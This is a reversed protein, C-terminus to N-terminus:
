LVEVKQLFMRGGLTVFALFVLALLLDGLLSLSHLISDQATPDITVRTSADENFLVIRDGARDMIVLDAEIGAPLTKSDVVGEGYTLTSLGDEGQLWLTGEADSTFALTGATGPIRHLGRDSAVGHIGNEGGVLAIFAGSWPNDEALSLVTHFPTGAGRHILTLQPAGETAAADLLVEANAGAAPNAGVLDHGIVLAGGTVVAIDHMMLSDMPAVAGESVTLGVYTHVRREGGAHAAIMWGSYLDGDLALIDGAEGAPWELSRVMLGANGPVKAAMWGDQGGIVWMEGGGGVATVNCQCDTETWQGRLDRLMLQEGDPTDVIAIALHHDDSWEIDILPGPLGTETTSVGPLVQAQATWIAGLIIFVVFGGMSVYPRERPADVFAFLRELANSVTGMPVPVNFFM